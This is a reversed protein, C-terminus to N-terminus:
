SKLQQANGRQGDLIIGWIENVITFLCQDGYKLALQLNQEKGPVSLFILEWEAADV